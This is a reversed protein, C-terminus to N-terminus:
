LKHKRPLVGTRPKNIADSFSLRSKLADIMVGSAPEEMPWVATGAVARCRCLLLEREGAAQHRTTLLGTTRTTPKRAASHGTM